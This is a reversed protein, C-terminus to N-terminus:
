LLGLFARQEFVTLVAAFTTVTKFEDVTWIPPITSKGLGASSEVFNVRILDRIQKLEKEVKGMDDMYDLLLKKERGTM